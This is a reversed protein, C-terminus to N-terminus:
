FAVPEAAVERLASAEEGGGELMAVHPVVSVFLSSVEETASDFGECVPFPTLLVV